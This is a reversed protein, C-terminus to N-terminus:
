RPRKEASLVELAGDAVRFKIDMGAFALGYIREASDHYQPRPDASLIERLALLAEEGAHDAVALETEPSIHVELPAFGTGAVFGCLAEPVSDGYPIYPKIDYIPTGSVLDPGLVELFPGGPSELDVKDLKVLSLGLPNPRFPSRTAFVGTRVNGGLRPPRVTLQRRCKAGSAPNAAAGAAGSDAGSDANVAAGADFGPNAHFGWILWIHSFGELGRISDPNRFPPEFSIRGRLHPALVGQRPTGFKEELPTKIHAIPEIQM